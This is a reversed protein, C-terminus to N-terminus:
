SARHRMLCTTARARLQSVSFPKQMYDTAGAAFAADMSALESDATVVIIPLDATEPAGRLARCAALGDMKPMRADMVLVDPVRHRAQAVADTGNSTVDVAFDEELVDRMTEALAADDEAILLRPRGTTEHPM